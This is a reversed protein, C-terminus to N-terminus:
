KNADNGGEDFDPLPLPCKWPEARFWNVREVAKYMDPKVLRKGNRALMFVRAERFVEVLYERSIQELLACCQGSIHKEGCQSHRNAMNTAFQCLRRTSIIFDHRTGDFDIRARYPVVTRWSKKGSNRPVPKTLDLRQPNQQKVIPM